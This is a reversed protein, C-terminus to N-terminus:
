ELVRVSCGFHESDCWLWIIDGELKVARLTVNKKTVLSSSTTWRVQGTVKEGEQVPIGSLRVSYFDSMNDTHIRFEKRERNFAAQCTLPDYRFVTKGREQLCLGEQGEFAPLFRDDRCGSLLLTALAFVLLFPSRRSM